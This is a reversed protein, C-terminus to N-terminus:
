KIQVSNPIVSACNYAQFGVRSELQSKDIPCTSQTEPGDDVVDCEDDDDCDIVAVDVVTLLV